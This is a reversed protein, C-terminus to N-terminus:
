GVPLLEQLQAAAEAERSLDLTIEEQLIRARLTEKNDAGLTQTRAAVLAKAAKQAQTYKHARYLLQMEVVAKEDDENGSEASVRCAGGCVLLLVQLCRAPPPLLKKM